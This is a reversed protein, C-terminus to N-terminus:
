KKKLEEKLEKIEKRLERLEKKLSEVDESQNRDYDRPTRRFRDKRNPPTSYNIRNRKEKIKEDRMKERLNDLKHETKEISAELKKVRKQAEKLQMKQSKLDSEVERVNSTYNSNERLRNTKSKKIIQKKQVTDLVPKTTDVQAFSIGSALIFLLSFTVLRFKM